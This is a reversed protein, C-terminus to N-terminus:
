TDHLDTFIAAIVEGNDDELRLVIEAYRLSASGAVELRITAMNRGFNLQEPPLDVVEWQSLARTQTEMKKEM